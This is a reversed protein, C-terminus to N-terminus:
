TDADEEPGLSAVPGKPPAKFTQISAIEVRQSIGRRVTTLRGDRIYSYISRRTVGLIAAAEDITVTTV